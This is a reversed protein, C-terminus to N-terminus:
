RPERNAPWAALSAVSFLVLGFSFRGVRGRAPQGVRVNM